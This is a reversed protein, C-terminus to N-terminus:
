EVDKRLRLAERGLKSVRIQTFRTIKSTGGNRIMSVKQLFGDEVLKDVTKLNQRIRRFPDRLVLVAKRSLKAGPLKKYDRLWQERPGDKAQPYSKEIIEAARALLDYPDATDDPKSM